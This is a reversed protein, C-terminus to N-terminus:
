LYGGRFCETWDDHNSMPTAKVDGHKLGRAVSRDEFARHADDDIKFIRAPELQGLRICTLYNPNELLREELRVALSEPLPSTAEVYLTYCPGSARRDPALMCFRHDVGALIDRLAESVHAEHLKEGYRDSVHEAKGVFRLTPVTGLFGTVEVQDGLRYRYLGSGTSVIVSYTRGKEVEHAPVSDGQLSLFEFFHSGIALVPDNNPDFPFSVFAETALLGKGQIPTSQFFSQLRQAEPFSAADAWCSIVTLRPWIREFLNEDTGIAELEAIRRGARNPHLEALAAYAAEPNALYWELLLRLFSPSWVSILALDEAALLSAVTRRRFDWTDQTQALQGPVVALWPFVTKACAGLYASDDDFGVNKVGYRRFEVSPPSISWYARGNHIAPYQRYLSGIWPAVACSFEQKIAPTYPILKRSATSGSSPEFLLVDDTTLVRDQGAAIKEIFPEYDEYRTLPVQNQYNTISAIDAFGYERGYDTNSNTTLLRQLHRRQIGECDVLQDEFRRRERQGLGSLVANAACRKIAALSM